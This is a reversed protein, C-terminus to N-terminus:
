TPATPRPSAMKPIIALNKHISQKKKITFLLLMLMSILGRLFPQRDKWRDVFSGDIFIHTKVILLRRSIALSPM